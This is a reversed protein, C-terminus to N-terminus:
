SGPGAAKRYREVWASLSTGPCDTSKFDKHRYVRAAPIRFRSRLDDLLRELSRMAPPAPARRSFDGLVCVGINQRNNVGGVHAGQWTLERGELIRGSADILFHYGIDGWGHDPDGRDMHVRQIRQLTAATAALSGGPLEDERRASHHVTIKSWGGLVAEMERTRGAQAKWASRPLVAVSGAPPGGLLTRISDLGAQARARQGPSARPDAAVLEFGRRALQLRGLAADDRPAGRGVDRRAFELRGESLELRAELELLPDHAQASDLLWREIADLKDWSLPEGVWEPAGAPPQDPAQPGATAPATSRCGAALAGLTGLFIAPARGSSFSRRARKLLGALRAWKM